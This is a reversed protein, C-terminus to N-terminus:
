LYFDAAAKFAVEPTEFYKGDPFSSTEYKKFVYNYFALGWKDADGFYRLRFLHIPTNRLRELHEERTEPFDSPWKKTPEEPEIFVDVSCFQNHFRVDLRTYRGTLNSEAYKLIRNKTQCKVKDDIGIGGSNPDKGWDNLSM